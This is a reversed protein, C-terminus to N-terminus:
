SRPIHYGRRAHLIEGLICPQGVKCADAVEALWGIACSDGTERTAMDVYRRFGPYGKSFAMDHIVCEPGPQVMGAQVGTKSTDLPVRKDKRRIGSQAGM